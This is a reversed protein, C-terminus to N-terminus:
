AFLECLIELGEYGEITFDDRIIHEAKIKAKEDKHDALLQAIERKQHKVQTTRKNNAINIRQVAM